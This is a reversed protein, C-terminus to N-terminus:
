DRVEVDSRYVHGVVNRIGEVDFVRKEERENPVGHADRASPVEIKGEVLFEGGEDEGVGDGVAALDLEVGGPDEAGWVTGLVGGPGPVDVLKAQDIDPELWTERLLVLKVM